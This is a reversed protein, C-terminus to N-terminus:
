LPSPTHLHVVMNVPLLGVNAAKLNALGHDDIRVLLVDRHRKKHRTAVKTGCECVFAWM